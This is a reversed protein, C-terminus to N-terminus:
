LGFLPQIVGLTKIYDIDDKDLDFWEGELRKNSFHLHMEREASSYDDFEAYHILKIEFPLKVSFLKTRNKINITKGIKFGYESEIVYVFGKIPNSGLTATSTRINTTSGVVKGFETQGLESFCEAFLDKIMYRKVVEPAFKFFSRDKWFRRGSPNPRLYVDFPLWDVEFKDTGIVVSKVICFALTHGLLDNENWDALVICHGNRLKPLMDEPVSLEKGNLINNIEIENTSLRWFNSM